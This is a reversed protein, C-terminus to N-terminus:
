DAVPLCLEAAFIGQDRRESPLYLEFHARDDLVRGGPLAWDRFVADWAEPFGEAPGEYGFAAYAGGAVPKLNFPCDAPPAYGADVELCADYRCKGPETIGFDDYGVGASRVGDRVLGRERGWIYLELFAPRILAPDYGTDVRRYLAPFAPITRMGLFPPAPRAPPGPVRARDGRFLSPPRGFRSGFARAFNAGSSFGLSLALDTVNLDPRTGLRRRAKELRLRRVFARPTEGVAALFIRHFHFKSFNAAEAVAALDLEEDLHAEVYDMAADVRKRYYTDM